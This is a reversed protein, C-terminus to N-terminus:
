IEMKYNVKFWTACCNRNITGSILLSYKDLIIMYGKGIFLLFYATCSLIKKAM